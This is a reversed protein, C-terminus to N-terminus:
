RALEVQVSALPVPRPTAFHWVTRGRALTDVGQRVGTARVALGPPVEVHLAVTVPATAGAPAPLWGAAGPPTAGTGARPVGHFRIRALVTDGVAFGDPVPVLLLDAGRGWDGRRGASRGPIIVRVVRVASDLVFRMPEMSRLVLTVEAQGVVHGTSDGTVVTLDYALLDNPPTTDPLAAPRAALAAALALAALM